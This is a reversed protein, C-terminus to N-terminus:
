AAAKNDASPASSAADSPQASDSKGREIETLKTASIMKGTLEDLEHLTLVDPMQEFSTLQPINEWRQVCVRAADVLLKIREAPETAADFAQFLGALKVRENATPFKCIFAPRKSEDPYDKVDSDLYVRVTNNPSLGIPM